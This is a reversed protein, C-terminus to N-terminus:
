GSHPNGLKVTLPVHAREGHKPSVLSRRTGPALFSDMYDLYRTLATNHMAAQPASASASRGWLSCSGGDNVDSVTEAVTEVPPEGM